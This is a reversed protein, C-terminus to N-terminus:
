NTKIIFNRLFLLCFAYLFAAAFFSCFCTSYIPILLILFDMHRRVVVGICELWVWRRIVVGM